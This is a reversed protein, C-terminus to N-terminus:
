SSQFKPFGPPLKSKPKAPAAPAPAAAAGTTKEYGAQYQPMFGEFGLQEPPRNIKVWHLTRDQDGISSLDSFIDYQQRKVPDSLVSYAVGIQAFKKEARLRDSESLHVLRDPHYQKALRYYAQKLDAAQLHHRHVELIAYYDLGLTRSTPQRHHTSDHDNSSFTRRQPAPERTVLLLRLQSPSSAAPQAGFRIRLQPAVAHAARQLRPLSM